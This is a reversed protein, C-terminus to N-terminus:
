INQAWFDQWLTKPNKYIVNGEEDIIFEIYITFRKKGNGDLVLEYKGANLNDNHEQFDCEGTLEFIKENSEDILTCKNKFEFINERSEKEYIYYKYEMDYEYPLENTDIISFKIKDKTFEEINITKKEMSSNAYRLVDIPIEVETKEKLIKIKDAYIKGPYTTETFGDYYVLIEQGIEFENSEIKKLDVILISEDFKMITLLTENIKIIIGKETVKKKNIFVFIIALFVILIALALLVKTYKKM